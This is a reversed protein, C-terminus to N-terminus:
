GRLSRAFGPDLRGEAVAQVPGRLIVDYEPTVTVDLTGGAMRVRIRGPRLRGTAVAAVASACASSGSASTRGVGREWIEIHLEDPGSVHALQV